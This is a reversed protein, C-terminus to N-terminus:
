DKGEALRNIIEKSKKTVGGEPKPELNSASTKKKAAPNAAIQKEKTKKVTKSHSTTKKPKSLSVHHREVKSSEKSPESYLSRIRRREMVKNDTTQPKVQEGKFTASYSTELNTKGEVLLKYQSKAKIPKVPKVDTYAKFETRYSSGSTVEQKIQRNLADATSRKKGEVAVDTPRDRKIVDSINEKKDPKKRKEKSEKEQMKEEIECKEVGTEVESTAQEQKSFKSEAKCSAPTPKAIWPHDGRKPIPWPKYDKQYQTVNNFPAKSPQYENRPKCSREPRVSWAKFDERMVSASSGDHSSSSPGAADSAAHIAKASAEPHASHVPQSETTVPPKQSILPKPQPHLHQVDAVDSYKTFVLPVAIDGKDLDSWFRNICCARTLCPWAM